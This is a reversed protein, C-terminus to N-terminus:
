LVVGEFRVPFRSFWNVVGDPLVVSLGTNAFALDLPRLVKLFSGPCGLKM